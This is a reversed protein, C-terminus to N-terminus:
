IGVTDRLIAPLQLPLCQSHLSQSSVQHSSYASTSSVHHACGFRTREKQPLPSPNIQFFKFFRPIKLKCVPSRVKMFHSVKSPDQLEYFLVNFYLQTARPDLKM